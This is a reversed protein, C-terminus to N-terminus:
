LRVAAELRMGLGQPLAEPRMPDITALGRIVFRNGILIEPGLEIPLAFGVPGGWWAGVRLWLGMYEFFSVRFDLNAGGWISNFAAGHWQDNSGFWGCHIGLSWVFWPVIQDGVADRFSGDIVFGDAQSGLAQSYARVGMSLPMHSFTQAIGARQRAASQPDYQYYDYGGSSGTYRWDSVGMLAIIYTVLNILPGKNEDYVLGSMVVPGRGDASLWPMVGFSYGLEFFSTRYIGYGVATRTDGFLFEGAPDEDQASAVSPAPIVALALAAGIALSRATSLM